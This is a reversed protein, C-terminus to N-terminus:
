DSVECAGLVGLEVSDGRSHRITSLELGLTICENVTESKTWAQHQSDGLMMAEASALSLSHTDEM